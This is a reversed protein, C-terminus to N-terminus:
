STGYAPNLNMVADGVAVFNPPLGEVKHYQIWNAPKTTVDAWTPRCEEEHMELLDIMDCLWEPTGHLDKIYSRIEQISHPRDLVGPGGCIIQVVLGDSQM